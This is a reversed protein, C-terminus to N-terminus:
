ATKALVNLLRSVLECVLYKMPKAASFSQLEPRLASKNGMEVLKM